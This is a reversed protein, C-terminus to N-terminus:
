QFSMQDFISKFLQTVNQIPFTTCTFDIDRRGDPALNAFFFPLPSVSLARQFFPYSPAFHTHLFRIRPEEEEDDDEEDDEEEDEEKEGSCFFDAKRLLKESRFNSLGPPRASPSPDSFTSFVPPLIDRLFSYLFATHTFFQPRTGLKAFLTGGYSITACSQGKQLM